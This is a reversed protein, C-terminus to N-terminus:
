LHTQQKEESMEATPSLSHSWATHLPKKLACSFVQTHKYEKDRKVRSKKQIQYISLHSNKLNM